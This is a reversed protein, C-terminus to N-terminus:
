YKTESVRYKTYVMESIRSDLRSEQLKGTKTLAHKGKICIIGLTEVYTKKSKLCYKVYNQEISGDFEM